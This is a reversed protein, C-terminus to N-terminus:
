RCFIGVGPRRREVGVFSVGRVELQELRQRVSQVDRRALQTACRECRDVRDWVHALADEFIKDEEKSRSLSRPRTHRYDRAMREQNHMGEQWYM